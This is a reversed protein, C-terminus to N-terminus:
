LVSVRATMLMVEPLRPLAGEFDDSIINIVAPTDQAQM